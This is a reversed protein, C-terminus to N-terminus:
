RNLAWKFLEHNENENSKGGDLDIEKMNEIFFM